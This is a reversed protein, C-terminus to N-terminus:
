LRLGGPSPAAESAHGHGQHTPVVGYALEVVGDAEPPGKFGAGGIVLGSAIHLMAFGWTWPDAETATNLRALWIRPCTRPFM